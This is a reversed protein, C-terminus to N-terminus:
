NTYVAKGDKGKVTKWEEHILGVVNDPLPM